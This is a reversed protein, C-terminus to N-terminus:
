FQCLIVDGACNGIHLVRIDIVKLGAQKWDNQALFVFVSDFMGFTQCSCLALLGKGFDLYFPKSQGSQVFCGTLKGAVCRAFRCLYRGEESIHFPTDNLQNLVGNRPTM